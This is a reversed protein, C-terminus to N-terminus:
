YLYISYGESGSKVNRAKLGGIDYRQGLSVPWGIFRGTKKNKWGWVFRKWIFIIRIATFIGLISIIKELIAQYFVYPHSVSRGSLTSVFILFTLLTELGFQMTNVNMLCRVSCFLLGAPRNCSEAEVSWSLGYNRSRLWRFSWMEVGKRCM